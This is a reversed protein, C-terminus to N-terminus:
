TRAGALDGEGRAVLGLVRNAEAQGGPDNLRQYRDRAV